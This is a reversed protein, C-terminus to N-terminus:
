GSDKKPKKVYRLRENRVGHEFGEIKAQEQLNLAEIEAQKRKLVERKELGQEVEKRAKEIDSDLTRSLLRTKHLLARKESVAEEEAKDSEAQAELTRQQQAHFAELTEAHKTDEKLKEIEETKQTSHVMLRRNSSREAKMRHLKEEPRTITWASVLKMTEFVVPLILGGLLPYFLLTYTSSHEEFYAVREIATMKAFFLVFLGKWNLALFVVTFSSLFPSRIRENWSEFFSKIFDVM